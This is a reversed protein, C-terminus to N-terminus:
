TLTEREGKKRREGESRVFRERGSKTTVEKNTIMDAVGRLGPVGPLERLEEVAASELGGLPVGAREWERAELVAGM